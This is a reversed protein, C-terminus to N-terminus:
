AQKVRYVAVGGAGVEFAAAVMPWQEGAAATYASFTIGEPGRLGNPPAAISQFVPGTGTPNSTTPNSLDYVAIHSFRELTLFLLRRVPQDPAFRWSGLAIGEPEPGKNDSRTDNNDAGPGDSNYVSAYEPTFTRVELQNASDYALAAGGGTVDWLSFSRAGFAHLEDLTGDSDTDGTAKTITLRGAVGNTKVSDRDPFAASINAAGVRVEENYGPFDRADGENASVVYHVGEHAFSGLEDPMYMGKLGSISRLNQTFDRDSTDLSNAALAHDKLGLPLVATITASVIDLLAVANNEQLSVVAKTGGPLITCFEPELDQAVTAGPSYIRVGAAVLSERQADFATFTAEKHVTCVLAGCTSAAVSDFWKVEVVSVSGEPNFSDAQGYSNAEAENAALLVSCDANWTISDPLYGVEVFGLLTSMDDGGYFFVRGRMHAGSTANKYGVSVALKGGCTTVDTVEATANEAPKPLAAFDLAGKVPLQPAGAGLDSPQAGLIHVKSGGAAFLLKRADDFAVQETLPLGTAQGVLELTVAPRVFASFTVSVDTTCPVTPDTVRVTASTANAGCTTANLISIRGPAVTAGNKTCVVETSALKNGAICGAKPSCVLGTSSCVSTPVGGSICCATKSAKIKTTAVSVKCEGGAGCVKQIVKCSPNEPVDPIDVCLENSNPGIATKSKLKVIFRPPLKATAAKHSASAVLKTSSHDGAKNLNWKALKFPRGSASCAPDTNFTLTKILYEPAASCCADAASCPAQASLLFCAKQYAVAPKTPKKPDTQNWATASNLALSFSSKSLPAETCKALGQSALLAVVALAALARIAAM